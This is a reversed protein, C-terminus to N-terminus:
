YARTECPARQRPRKGARGFGERPRGRSAPARGAQASGAARRQGTARRQRSAPHARRRGRRSGSASSSRRRSSAKRGGFHYTALQRKRNRNRSSADLMRSFRAVPPTGYLVILRREFLESRIRCLGRQDAIQSRVRGFALHEVPQVLVKVPESIFNLFRHLGSLWRSSGLM